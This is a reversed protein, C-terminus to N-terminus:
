TTDRKVIFSIGWWRVPQGKGWTIRLDYKINLTQKSKTNSECGVSFYHKVGLYNLWSSRKLANWPFGALKLNLHCKVRLWLEDTSKEVNILESRLKTESSSWGPWPYIVWTRTWLYHYNGWSSESKCLSRHTRKILGSGIFRRNMKWCAHPWFDSEGGM